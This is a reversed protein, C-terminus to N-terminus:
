GNAAGMKMLPSERPRRPESIVGWGDSDMLFGCEICIWNGTGDDMFMVQYLKACGRGRRCERCAECKKIFNVECKRCFEPGRCAKLMKKAIKMAARRERMITM